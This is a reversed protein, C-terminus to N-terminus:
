AAPCMIAAYLKRETERYTQELFLLRQEVNYLRAIEKKANEIEGEETMDVFYIALTKRKSEIRARACSTKVYMASAKSHLRMTNMIMTEM